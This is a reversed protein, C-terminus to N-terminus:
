LRLPMIGNINSELSITIGSEYKVLVCTVNDRANRVLSAHMLAMGSDVISISHLLILGIDVDTMEKTLGDSCLLFIDNEQLAHKVVEINLDCFVGVASTIVHELPHDEVDSPDLMGNDIMENIQTHDKTLRKLKKGRFLYARSDGGWLISFMGDKIFLIVITSGVSMGPFEEEALILLKENSNQLSDLIVQCNLEHIHTANVVNELDDVILQSAVDGAPHGGMGDAVAWIGHNPMKLFADENIKKITGRSTQAYSLQFM